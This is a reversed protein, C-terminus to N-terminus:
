TGTHARAISGAYVMCDSSQLLQRTRDSTVSDPSSHCAICWCVSSPQRHLSHEAPATTEHLAMMMDHPAGGVHVNTTWCLIKSNQVTMFIVLTDAHRGTLWRWPQCAVVSTDDVGVMTVWSISLRVTPQSLYVACSCCCWAVCANDAKCSPTILEAESGGSHITLASLEATGRM